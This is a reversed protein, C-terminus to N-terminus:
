YLLSKLFYIHIKEFYAMGGSKDSKYVQLKHKVNEKFYYIGIFSFFVKIKHPAPVQAPTKWSDKM